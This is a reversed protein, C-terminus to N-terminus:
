VGAVRAGPQASAWAGWAAGPHSETRGGVGRRHMLAQFAKGVELWVLSAHLATMHPCSPSHTHNGRSEWALRLLPAAPAPGPSWPPQGSLSSAGNDVWPESQREMLLGQPPTLIDLLLFVWLHVPLASRSGPPPPPSGCQRGAGPAPRPPLSPHYTHAGGGEGARCETGPFWM